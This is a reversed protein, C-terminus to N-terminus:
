DTLVYNLFEEPPTELSLLSEVAEKIQADEMGEVIGFAEMLSDATDKFGPLPNEKFNDVEQQYKRANELRAKNQMKQAATSSLFGSSGMSSQDDSVVGDSSKSSNTGGTSSDAFPPKSDGDEIVPTPNEDVNIEGIDANLSPDAEENVIDSSVSSINAQADNALTPKSQSDNTPVSIQQETVPKGMKEEAAAKEAQAREEEAKRKAAAEEKKKQEQLWLPGVRRNKIDKSEPVSFEDKHEEVYAWNPHDEVNYKEGKYPFHSRIVVLCEMSDMRNIQDPTMVEIKSRSISMGENSNGKFNYNATKTTKFGMKKSFYTTTAEDSAGLCIQTDCNAMITSATDKYRTKLQEIGQLVIMCSIEYKRITSLKQEFAPIAGINAFEDLMFRVHMPCANRCKVAKLNKFNAIAKNAMEETGRWIILEDTNETRIEYYKRDENWVLKTGAHVEKIFREIEEKADKSEESSKARAVKIVNTPGTCAMWGYSAQTEAYNYLTMFLQSYMLSALFNFTEDGTPLIVFLAQKTDAFSELHLEDINTLYKVDDLEFAQLRSGVSVLTEKLTKGAALKFTTYEQYALNGPDKKNLEEFMLDLPSQVSSDNEDIEAFHILEMVKSITKLREDPQVHWLYLFLANLLTTEMKEWFDDGKHSNPPTTNQILTKVIIFVDKESNLYHFPNYRSGKYVDTLNFVSVRYGNDELAKGYTKLLEGSPDTIVYNANYQLINPGIMFRSKGTGSAGVVLCNLNLPLLRQLAKPYRTNMTLRLYKALIMNQPGDIEPKGLPDTRKKNFDIVDEETMLHSDGNITDLDDIKRMRASIQRLHLQLAIFAYVTILVFLLTWNPPIIELPDFIINKVALSLKEAFSARLMEKSNNVASYHLTILTAFFYLISAIIERVVRKKQLKKKEEETLKKM